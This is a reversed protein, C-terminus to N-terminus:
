ASWNKNNEKPKTGNSHPLSRAVLADDVLFQRALLRCRQVLATLGLPAGVLVGENLHEGVQALLLGVEDKVLVLLDRLFGDILSKFGLERSVEVPANRCDTRM